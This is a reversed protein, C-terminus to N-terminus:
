FTKHTNGQLINCGERLPDQFEGGAILGLTHSGDYILLVNEGVLKRVEKVPLNFLPTGHEFIIAHPPYMKIEKKFADLDITLNKLDWPVFRSIRGIREVLHKTAFHGGDDPDISYITDGPETATTLTCITAHLGSTPRFNSVSAHFMERAAKQAITDLDIVGPMGKLMLGTATEIIGTPESGFMYRFSLPFNLFSEALKSLRNENSTIHLTELSDKENERINKILSQINQINM